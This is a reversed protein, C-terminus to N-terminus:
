LLAAPSLSLSLSLFPPLPLSFDPSFPLPASSPFVPPPPTLSYLPLSPPFFSPPLLAPMEWQQLAILQERVPDILYATARGPGAAVPAAGSSQVCLEAAPRNSRWQGASLGLKKDGRGEGWFKRLPIEEKTIAFTSRSLQLQGGGMWRGDGHM